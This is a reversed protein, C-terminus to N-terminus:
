NIGNDHVALCVFNLHLSIKCSSCFAFRFANMRLNNSLDVVVYNVVFKLQFYFSLCFRYELCLCVFVYLINCINISLTTVLFSFKTLFCESVMPIFKQKRKKKIHMVVNRMRCIQQKRIVRNYMGYLCGDNM